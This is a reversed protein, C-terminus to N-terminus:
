LGHACTSHVALSRGAGHAPRASRDHVAVRAWARDPLRLVTARGMPHGFVLYARDPIYNNPVDCHLDIFRCTMDTVGSTQIGPRGPSLLRHATAVRGRRGGGRAAPCGRAGPGRVPLVVASPSLARRRPAHRVGRYDPFALFGLGALADEDVRRYTMFDIMATNEDMEHAILHPFILALAADMDGLVDSVFLVKRDSGDIVDNRTVVLAAPRGDRRLLHYRYRFYPHRAYRWTMYAQDICISISPRPAHTTLWDAYPLGDPLADTSHVLGAAPPAPRPTFRPALSPALLRMADVDNFFVYRPIIKLLHYDNMRSYIAAGEENAGLGFIIPFHKKLRRLMMVGLGLNRYAKDVHLITEWTGRVTEDRGDETRVLFDLPVYGMIGIVEGDKVYNLFSHGQEQWHPHHRYHWDLFSPHHLVHTNRLNRSFFRHLLPQAEQPLVINIDM